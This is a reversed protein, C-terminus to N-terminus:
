MRGLFEEVPIKTLGKDLAIYMYTSAFTSYPSWKRCRRKVTETSPNKYGYLWKFAQMFAGDEYPVLDERRLYFMLFMKSTWQGIGKISTLTRVVDEDSFDDMGYLDIKGEVIATALDKITECKRLSMGCSRMESIDLALIREPTIENDCLTYLRGLIVARIKNSLMQGTIEHTLFIFPDEKPFIGIPGIEEIVKTLRPDRKSLYAIKDESM